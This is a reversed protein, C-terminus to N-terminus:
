CSDKGAEPYPDASSSPGDVASRPDEIFGEFGDSQLDQLESDGESASDDADEEGADEPKEEEEADPLKERVLWASTGSLFFLGLQLAHRHPCHPMAGQLVSTAWGDAHILEGMHIASIGTVLQLNDGFKNETQILSAKLGIAPLIMDVVNEYLTHHEPGPHIIQAIAMSLQAVCSIRLVLRAAVDAHDTEKKVVVMTDSDEPLEKCCTLPSMEVACNAPRLKKISGSELRVIWRGSADDWSECVAQLGNLHEAMVLGNIQISM